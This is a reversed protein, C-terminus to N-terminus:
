EIDIFFLSKSRVYSMLYDDSAINIGLSYYNQNTFDFSIVINCTVFILILAVSFVDTMNLETNRGLNKILGREYNSLKQRISSELRLYM